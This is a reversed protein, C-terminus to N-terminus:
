KNSRRASSDFLPFWERSHLVMVYLYPSNYPWRAVGFGQFIHRFTRFSDTSGVELPLYGDKLPILTKTGKPHNQKAFWMEENWKFIGDDNASAGQQPVFTAKGPCDTDAIKELLKNNLEVKSDQYPGQGIEIAATIIIESHIGAWIHAFCYADVIDIDPNFRSKQFISDVVYKPEYHGNQLKDIYGYMLPFWEPEKLFKSQLNRKFDLRMTNTM